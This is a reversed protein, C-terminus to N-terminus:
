QLDTARQYLLSNQRPQSDLIEVEASCLAQYIFWAPEWGPHNIGSELLCDHYGPKTVGAEVEYMLQLSSVHKRQLHPWHYTQSPLPFPHFTSSVCRLQIPNAQTM